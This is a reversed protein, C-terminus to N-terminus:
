IIVEQSKLYKVYDMAKKMPWIEAKGVGIKHPYVLVIEAPANVYARDLFNELTETGALFNQNDM